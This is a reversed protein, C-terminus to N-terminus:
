VVPKRPRVYRIRSTNMHMVHQVNYPPRCRAWGTAYHPGPRLLSPFPVVTCAITPDIALCIHLRLVRHSILARLSVRVEGGKKRVTVTHSVVIGM